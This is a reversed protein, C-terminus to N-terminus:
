PQSSDIARQKCCSKIMTLFFASSLGASAVIMCMVMIQYRAAILPSIGSLIQGTMMGPLSVLGVALLSNSVPIMAARYALKKAAEYDANTGLESNIREAALSVANMSNAFIMGSLPILYQPQYWPDLQLVGQTIILLTSGGGLLISFVAYIFLSKRQHAVEGLAIWSAVLLMLTLVVLILVASESQFLFTLFYGIVLLQGLMRTLGYGLKGVGLKWRYYFYMVPLVPVFAVALGSLSIQYVNASM